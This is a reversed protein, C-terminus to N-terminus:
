PLIHTINANAPNTLIRTTPPPSSLFYFFFFNDGVQNMEVLIIVTQVRTTIVV